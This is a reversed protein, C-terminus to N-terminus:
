RVMCAWYPPRATCSEPIPPIELGTRQETSPQYVYSAHGHRTCVTSHWVAFTFQAGQDSTIKKPAGFLAVMDLLFALACVDATM